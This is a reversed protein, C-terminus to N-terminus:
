ALVMFRIVVVGIFLVFLPWAALTLPEMLWARAGLCVRTFERAALVCLLLGLVVLGGPTWATGRVPVSATSLPIPQVPTGRPWTLTYIVADSNAFVTRVGRAAAMDARFQTGWGNQYGAGQQLYTEQTSATMLYSGPGMARLEKILTTVTAPDRPALEPVFDIKEIDRYEWPLQPTNDQAPLPSLWMLRLGASDHAYLYNFATVEGAPTQEFGENGYRTLFFSLVFVLACVAAAPLARWSRRGPRAAPFFVYAALIAVAPLAFLYVRLAIEGGYSQLGFGIFPLFMLAIVVRDDIAWRRRRLLGAVALIMIVAAALARAYLVWKHLTSTSNGSVGSIRGTVSTSVNAGLHGLGGFIGSLHGSWYDVAEFSLWGAAIVFLLVPLGTIGCRRVLVLGACAAIMFVPTLQHSVTSTVFIAILLTLLLARQGSSTPRSSLEGPVLLRFAARWRALLGRQETSGAGPRAPNPQTGSGFWTLLMAVFVLYLLYNFSQPSFYDQGVWNGATFLLAAFWKAQWTARLNRMIVGLPVLCLLDVAMPWWRLVGILDHSGTAGVASAVLAFFGPWSFYADLGPAAHGTRSIFESFGAIQYATAFRPASEMVATVGDLCVVIGALLAGLMVPSARPLGLAAVFAVVLLVVGLLSAAPLVSILGLGNMRGLDVGRLPVFFLVMGAAGAVCVATLAARWWRPLVARAAVADRRWDTGAGAGATAAAGAGTGRGARDAPPGPTRVTDLSRFSVTSDTSAALTAGVSASAPVAWPEDQEVRLWPMVPLAGMPEGALVRWLGPAIMVAVFAQSILVALAAGVIGLLATLAVTLGLVLVARVGQILAVQSTRSQARLAGLYLETMTKPLTAVALLQLIRTGHAAYNAGFLGLVLPAILVLGAATPVLLMMMRRLAARCNVALKAADFAGEVTLSTAMNVALLDLVGGIMWAMYFWAYVDSPIRLAVLVPVLTTVALLCITGTYDGAVFRSIQRGSPPWRDGSLQAHRPMLRAFILGNVLPLSVAVPFMWSIYIGELPLSAAFVLLLVIKVIGFIGNELPVWIANRLGTLVGDQLTFINWTVVSAVFFTGGVFGSLESYSKSFHGVTLVFIVAVLMSAACSIAYIRLVLGRTRRGSQPIFRALTGTLTSATLGALLNMASYAASAQGVNGQAYHRAALLWYGLGLVGTAGTNIMLAYANRFLPDSLYGRLKGWYGALGLGHDDSAPHSDDSAPRSDDSAPRSDDSAPRSHAGPARTSRPEGRVGGSTRIDSM